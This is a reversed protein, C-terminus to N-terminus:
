RRQTYGVLADLKARATGSDLAEEAMELGQELTAAREGAVLAAAANLAVVDRYAGREGSLVRRLGEVAAGRDGCALEAAAARRLGLDRADLHHRTIGNPTIEAYTNVETTTFEGVGDGGHVVFSHRTGLRQLAEALTEVLAASPVGVVQTDAGAPNTLPGLLNFITRSRLARRAPMVRQMAPNLLPAYLFGWGVAELLEGLREAPFALNVGLAELVDASGCPSTSSRNGHKAVSLGAGAATIAAATSVNFVKRANGGTGCTDTWRRGSDSLRIKLSASRMAEAFGVIEDVTEGKVALAALLAGLVIDRNEGAQEERNLIAELTARAQERSLSQRALVQRLADHLGDNM